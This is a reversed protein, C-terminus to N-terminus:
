LFHFLKEGENQELRKKNLQIKSISRRDEMDKKKKKRDEMDKIM